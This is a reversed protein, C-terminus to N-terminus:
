GVLRDLLEVLLRLLHVLRTLIKSQRLHLVLLTHDLPGNLRNTVHLWADSLGGLNGLLDDVLALLLKLRLLALKAVYNRLLNTQNVVLDM